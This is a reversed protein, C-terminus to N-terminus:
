VFGKLNMRYLPGLYEGEHQELSERKKLEQLQSAKFFYVNNTTKFHIVYGAKIGKKECDSLTEVQHPTLFSYIVRENIISKTDVFATKGDNIIIFDFPTKVPIMKMRGKDKIWKGGEPFRIPYLGAFYCATAFFAEFAAGESKGKKGGIIKKFTAM